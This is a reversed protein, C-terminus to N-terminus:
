GTLSHLIAAKHLPTAGRPEAGGGGSGARGAARGGPRPSGARGRGRLSKQELPPKLAASTTDSCCGRLRCVLKVKEEKEEASRDLHIFHLRVPDFDCIQVRVERTRQARSVQHVGRGDHLTQM